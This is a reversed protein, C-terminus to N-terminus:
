IENSTDKVEKRKFSPLKIIGLYIYYVVMIMMSIISSWLCLKGYSGWTIPKNGFEKIKRM